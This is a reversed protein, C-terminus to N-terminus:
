RKPLRTKKTPPPSIETRASPWHRSGRWSTPTAAMTPFADFLAGASIPARPLALHRASHRTTPILRRGPASRTNACASAAASSCDPDLVGCGCDCGDNTGYYSEDCLWRRESSPEILVVSSSDLGNITWLEEGRVPSFAIDRPDTLGEAEGAIVEVDVADLTHAGNGLHPLGTPEVVGTPDSADSADSSDTVDTPDSMQRQAPRHRRNTADSVDSADSSDTVDTSDSADSSDTADTSDSADSATQAIQTDTMDTPDSADSSDTADTPDSADSSDTADTPDSDDSSDTADTPDSADSATPRM